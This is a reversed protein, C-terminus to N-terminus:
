ATADAPPKATQNSLHFQTTAIKAPRLKRSFLKEVQLSRANAAGMRPADLPAAALVDLGSL